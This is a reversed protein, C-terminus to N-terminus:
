IGPAECEKITGTMMEAEVSGPNVSFQNLIEPLKNSSFPISKAVQRPLFTASNSNETFFLNMTTCPHLDKELFFLAVNPNDQLQDEDAAYNYIFPIPGSKVRVYVPKGKHGTNVSVGGKGVGVTTGGGQKGKGSNVDVGGKGVNVSTGGPKGKGADVNVGGKGVNVSTGGPKGKEADVNTGSKGVNVSTSKDVILDPQLLDKVAKPMPTNPLRSKWYLEPALAAQCAVAALAILALVSQLHFGM